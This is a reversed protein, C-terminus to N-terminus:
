QADPRCALALERISLSCDFLCEFRMEESLGGLQILLEVCRERCFSCPGCEYLQRLVPIADPTPHADAIERIPYGIWHLEDDDHPALLMRELIAYDGSQYHAELLHAAAPHWCPEECLRLAFERINPGTVHGLARLAAWSTQRDPSKVLDMLLAPDGPYPQKWFIDLTALRRNPDTEARLDAAALNLEEQTAQRGFRRALARAGQCADALIRQRLESYTLRPPKARANWRAAGNAEIAAIRELLGALEPLDRAARELEKGAEEKGDRKELEEVCAWMVYLDDEGAFRLFQEAAFLFGDLGDLDVLEDAATFDQEQAHSAYARYLARRAAGDGQEAFLRGLQYIQRPCEEASLTTLATVLTQRYLDPEGTAQIVDFLYQGRAEEVQQDYALSHTCAHLILDRYPAADHHL